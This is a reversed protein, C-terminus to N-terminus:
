RDRNSRKSLRNALQVARRLNNSGVTSSGSPNDDLAAEIREGARQRLERDYQLLERRALMLQWLNHINLPANVQDTLHELLHNALRM